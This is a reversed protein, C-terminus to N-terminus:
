NKTKLDDEYPNSVVNSNKKFNVPPLDVHYQQQNREGPSGLPSKQQQKDTM